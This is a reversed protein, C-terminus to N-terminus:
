YEKNQDRFVNFPNQNLTTITIEGLPNNDALVTQTPAGAPTSAPVLCRFSFTQTLVSAGSVPASGKELKFSNLYIRLSRTSTTLLTGNVVIDAILITGADRWAFWQDSEYRPLTFSGTIERMGGRGPETRYNGSVADQDDAQINNNISLEFSSIGMNDAADLAAETFPAVRIYAIDSFILRENAEFVASSYDLDWTTSAINSASDRDLDFPIFDASMTVAGGADGKFSLTNVMASRFVWPKTQYSKYVGLTGRRIIQDTASGVGGAPYSAYVDSWLQDMLNNCCEFTHTFEFAMQGTDTNGPTVDWNPTITVDTGSNYVSIRRVQGEGLANTLRIFKGVDGAAFVAGVNTFTSATSAATSALAQANEYVPSAAALPKEFGLACAIIADMGDYMAALELSGASKIAVIDSGVTAAGGLLTQDYDFSYDEEVSESLFPIQDSGGLVVEENNAITPTTPYTSNILGTGSVSAGEIRFAAKALVGLATTM